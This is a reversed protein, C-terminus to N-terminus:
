PQAKVTVTVVDGESVRAASQSDKDILLYLKNRRAVIASDFTVDNIKAIVLYGRRGHWIPQPQSLWEQAPDFPVEVACEKHGKLVKGEFEKKKM